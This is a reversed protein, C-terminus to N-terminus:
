RMGEEDGREQRGKEKGREKEEEEDGRKQKESAFKGCKYVAVLYFCCFICVFVSKQQFYCYFPCLILLCLLINGNMGCCLRWLGYLMVDAICCFMGYHQLMIAVYVSCRVRMKKNMNKIEGNYLKYTFFLDYIQFANLIRSDSYPM